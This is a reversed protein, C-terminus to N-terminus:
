RMYSLLKGRVLVLWDRRLVGCFHSWSYSPTMSAVSFGDEKGDVM